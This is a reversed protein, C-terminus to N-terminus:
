SKMQEALLEYLGRVEVGPAAHRRLHALCQPADTV